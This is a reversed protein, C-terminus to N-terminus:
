FTAEFHFSCAYKALNCGHADRSSIGQHSLQSLDLLDLIPEPLIADRGSGASMLLEVQEAQLSTSTGTSSSNELFPTSTITDEPLEPTVDLCKSFDDSVNLYVSESDM